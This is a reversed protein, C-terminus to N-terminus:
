FSVCSKWQRRYKKVTSKALGVKKAIVSDWVEGNEFEELVVKKKTELEQPLMM